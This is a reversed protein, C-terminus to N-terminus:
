YGGGKEYYGQVLFYHGTLFTLDDYMRARLYEGHDGHLVVPRGSKAFTWRMTMSGNLNPFEYLIADFCHWFWMQNEVVPGATLPYIQGEANQVDIIIGNTLPTAGPGAGYGDAEFPGTDQITIIVRYIVFIEGAAPVIKFDVPSGSYNGNANGNGSGDGNVDLLRSIIKQASPM